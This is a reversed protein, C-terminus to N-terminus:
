YLGASGAKGFYWTAGLTLAHGAHTDTGSVYQLWSGFLDVRGLAYSLGGEVHFSDDRLLRDHEAFREPTNVEGPFPLAVNEPGGGFRLGGHTRQWLASTHLQLRPTAAWSLGVSANSRNNPLDVEAKEVVAYTYGAQIELAPTLEDLTRAAFLGLQLEKLRRGVVAEGQYNYAHSPLVLALSPTLALPGRSLAEYRAGLRFDQFSSHWQRGSDVPLNAPTPGAGTYKAGVYPLGASLSLRSTLGYDLEVALGHTRSQGEPLLFGDSLRHGTNDIGQYVLSVGGVGKPMPWAQAAAGGAAALWAGLALTTALRRRM